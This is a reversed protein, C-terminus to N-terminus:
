FKLAIYIFCILVMTERQVGAKKALFTAMKRNVLIRGRIRGTLRHRLVVMHLFASTKKAYQKIFFSVNYSKYDSDCQANNTYTYIYFRMCQYGLIEVRMSPHRHWHVTHFKIYRAIIPRDLYTHKM